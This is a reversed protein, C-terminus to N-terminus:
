ADTQRDLDTLMAGVDVVSRPTELEHEGALRESLSAMYTGFEADCRGTKWARRTMSRIAGLSGLDSPPPPTYTPSREKSNAVPRVLAGVSLGLWASVIAAAVILGLAIGPAANKAGSYHLDVATVAADALLLLAAIMSRLAFGNRERRPPPADAPVILRSLGKQISLTHSPLYMSPPQMTSRAVLPQRKPTRGLSSVALFLAALGIAALLGFVLFSLGRGLHIRSAQWILESMLGAAVASAGLQAGRRALDLASERAKARLETAWWALQISLFIGGAIVPASTAAVSSDSRDVLALAYAMLLGAGAATVLRPRRLGVALVVAVIAGLGGVLALQPLLPGLNLIQVAILGTVAVALFGLSLQPILSQRAV